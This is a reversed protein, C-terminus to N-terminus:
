DKVPPLTIDLQTKGKRVTVAQKHIWKGRFWIALSYTGARLQPFRFSGSADILALQARDAVLVTMKMHPVESCVVEYTGPAGFTHSFSDGPAVSEAKLFRGKAPELLHLASDRNEFTVKTNPRVALVPPDFAGDEMVIRPEYGLQDGLGTGDIAIVMQRRLDVRPPAIPLITNRLQPWFVEVAYPSTRAVTSGRLVSITGRVPGATASPGILVLSILVLGALVLSATLSFVGRLHPM